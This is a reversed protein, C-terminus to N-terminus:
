PRVLERVAAVARRAKSARASHDFTDFGRRVVDDLAALGGATFLRIAFGTRGPLTRGLARGRVLLDRTRGAEFAMLRAFRDDRVGAMLEDVSFDFRALDDAPLYVRGRDLDEGLDQWFEVLQLGTCTADALAQRAPTWARTLRLVLEGVPNASLACYGLLDDFTGYRHVRQDVRNAEILRGFPERPLSFASITPALRRVVPDRPTRGGYVTDLEAELGDLLVLRDGPSEDGIDDALRAFGYVAMLHPRLSRPFLLGAVPFNERAARARISAQTWTAMQDTM